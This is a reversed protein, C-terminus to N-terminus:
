EVHAPVGHLQGPQQFMQRLREEGTHFLPQDTHLEQYPCLSFVISNAPQCDHIWTPYDMVSDGYPHASSQESPLRILVVRHCKQTFTKQLKLPGLFRRIGLASPKCTFECPNSCAETGMSGHSASLSGGALGKSLKKFAAPQQFCLCSEDGSNVRM